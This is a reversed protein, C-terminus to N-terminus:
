IKETKLSRAIQEFFPEFYEFNEPRAHGQMRYMQGDKILLYIMRKYPKQERVIIAIVKTANVGNIEEKLKSIIEFDRVDPENFANLTFELTRDITTEETEYYTFEFYESGGNPPFIVLTYGDDEVQWEEPVLLSFRIEPDEVVHTTQAFVLQPVLYLFFFLFRM